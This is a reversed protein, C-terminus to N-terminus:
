TCIFNLSQGKFQVYCSRFDQGACGAFRTQSQDQSFLGRSSRKKRKKENKEWCASSLAYILILDQSM